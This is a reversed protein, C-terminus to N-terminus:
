SYVHIDELLVYKTYINFICTSAEMYHAMRPEPVIYVLALSPDSRVKTDDTEAQGLTHGPTSRLQRANVEKVLRM